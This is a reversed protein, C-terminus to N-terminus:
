NLAFIIKLTVYETGGIGPNSSYEKIEVKGLSKSNNIFIIDM